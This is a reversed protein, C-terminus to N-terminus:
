TIIYNINIEINKLTFFLELLSEFQYITCSITVEDKIILQQISFYLSNHKM